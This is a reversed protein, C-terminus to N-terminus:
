KITYTGMIHGKIMMYDVSSIKGDDNIDAALLYKGTIYTTGMIHAKIRMYDVSTIKGDGSVDGLTYDDYDENLLTISEALVYVYDRSFDYVGSTTSVASRSSNLVGDSQIKYWLKGGYTVEDLIVVTFNDVVKSNGSLSNYVSSSDGLNAYAYIKEFTVGIKYTNYDYTSSSFYEEIGYAQAAAKEAWYPDSAYYINAGVDKDGLCAGNYKWNKPDTYGQSMFDDMHAAICDSISDYTYANYVDNDYAGHGFINNKSSAIGSSGWASENIAIGLTLMANIGYTNQNSIFVAGTNLLASSSSCKSALYENIQDATFATTTRQSLYQYYNYYPSTANIANLYTGNKYDTVMTKYSTYFYHGDYSYYTKNNSMYDETYGVMITSAITKNDTTINHYIKGNSTTYTSVINGAAIFDDYEVVYASSTSIYGSAASQRFIYTSGTTGLYAADPAYGGHTSVTVGDENKYTVYDSIIVVGYDVAQTAAKVSVQITTNSSTRTSTSESSISFTMAGTEEDEEVSVEETEDSEIESVGVEEPAVGVEELIATVSSEQDIIEQVVEAEVEAEAETALTALVVEEGDVELVVEYEVNDIAELEETSITEVEDIPTLTVNGEADLAIFNESSTTVESEVVTTSTDEVAYTSMMGDSLIVSSILSVVLGLALLQNRRRLM